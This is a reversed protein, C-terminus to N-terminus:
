VGLRMLDAGIIVDGGFARGSPGAPDITEM